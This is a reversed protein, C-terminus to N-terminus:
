SGSLINELKNLLELHQNTQLGASSYYKKEVFHVNLVREFTFRPLNATQDPWFSIGGTEFPHLFNDSLYKSIEKLNPNLLELSKDTTIFLNSIYLKKRIIQEYNPLDFDKSLRTLMEMLFADSDKTSSKTDVVFGDNHVTLMFDIVDGESNRFEGGEFKIGKTYDPIETQSPFSKFKYLNVLLPIVPYLSKGKPNFEFVNCLWVSRALDVSLLRMM